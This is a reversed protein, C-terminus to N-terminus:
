GLKMDCSFLKRLLSLGDNQVGIKRSSDRKIKQDLLSEESAEFHRDFSKKAFQSAMDWL